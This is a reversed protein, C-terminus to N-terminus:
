FFEKQSLNCIKTAIIKAMKLKSEYTWGAIHPTIIVNEFNMLIKLESPADLKEFSKKEYELVDLGAGKIKKENLATILDNIKICKGRSTNLLWFPKKMSNIFDGSILGITLPTEPIHLSIIDASKKLSKISSQEAYIDSKITSDIDYFLINVNFGYLKKAFAKGTKGYGIIGVTKNTLEYGRNKERLWLNNKMQNYSRTINNFLSLLLGLTHEGVANSNGEPSSIITINKKRTFDIDINELGSGIRAIFKLQHGHEIFEKDIEIRSRLVVGQYNKIIKLIDGRNKQYFIDNQFGNKNLLEILLPHSEDLHIIKNM